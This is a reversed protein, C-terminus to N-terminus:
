VTFPLGSMKLLWDRYERGWQGAPIQVTPNKFHHKYVEEAEESMVIRWAEPHITEWPHQWFLAQLGAADTVDHSATFSAWGDERTYIQTVYLGRSITANPQTRLVMGYATLDATQATYGPTDDDDADWAYIGKAGIWWLDDANFGNLAVSVLTDESGRMDPWFTHTDVGVGKNDLSYFQGGEYQEKWRVPDIIVTGPELGPMQHGMMDLQSYYNDLDALDAVNGDLLQTLALDIDDLIAVVDAAVNLDAMDGNWATYSGSAPVLEDESKQFDFTPIVVPGGPFPSYVQGWYDIIPKLYTPYMVQRFREVQRRLRDPNIDDFAEIMSRMGENILVGGYLQCMVKIMIGTTVALDMQERPVTPSTLPPAATARYGDRRQAMHWLMEYYQTFFITNVWDVAGNTILTSGNADIAHYGQLTFRYCQQLVQIRDANDGFSPINHFSMGMPSSLTPKETVPGQTRQDHYPLSAGSGAKGKNRGYLAAASADGSADPGYKKRRAM